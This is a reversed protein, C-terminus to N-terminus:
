SCLSMFTFIVGEWEGSFTLHVTIPAMWVYFAVYHTTFWYGSGYGLPDRSHTSNLAGGSVIYTMESASLIAYRIGFSQSVHSVGVPSHSQLRTPM